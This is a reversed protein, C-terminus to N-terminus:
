PDDPRTAARWMRYPWAVAWWVWCVALGLAVFLAMNPPKQQPPLDIARTINRFTDFVQSDRLVGLICWSSWLAGIIVYAILLSPWSM